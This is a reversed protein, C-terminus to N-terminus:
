YDKSGEHMIPEYFKSLLIVGPYIENFNESLTPNIKWLAIFDPVLQPRKIRKGNTTDIIVDKLIRDFTENIEQNNNFITNNDNQMRAYTTIFHLPLRIVGKTKETFKKIDSKITNLQESNMYIWRDILKEKRTNKTTICDYSHKLEIVFSYDKYICWYDIRGRSINNDEDENRRNVKKRNVPYETLVLGKCLSSLIPLIVSDLRRETYLFPFDIIDYKTSNLNMSQEAFGILIKKVFDYYVLYEESNYIPNSIRYSEKRITTNRYKLEM